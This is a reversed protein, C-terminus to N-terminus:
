DDDQSFPRRARSHFDLGSSVVGGRRGLEPAGSRGVRVDYRGGRVRAVASM